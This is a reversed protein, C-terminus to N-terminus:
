GQTEDIGHNVKKDFVQFKIDESEKSWYGDKWSRVFFFLALALSLTFFLYAFYVSPWTYDRM